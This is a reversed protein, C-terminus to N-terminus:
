GGARPKQGAGPKQGEEPQVPAGDGIKQVGSVVVQEGPKLGSVVVYDDGLVEGVRLPRQRAVLGEGQKEAVFCFYQGSVRTVAVIPITVGPATQWVIRAKIFQQVRM